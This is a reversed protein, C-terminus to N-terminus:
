RGAKDDLMVNLVTDGPGALAACFLQAPATTSANKFYHIIQGPAEYTPSGLPAPREPADGIRVLIAGQSVFCVVPVTHKHMPMTQGPLFDVRTTEVRSVTKGPAIPFSALPTRTPIPAQASAFAPPLAALALGLVRAIALTATRM